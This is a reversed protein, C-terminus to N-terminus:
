ACIIVKENRITWLNRAMFPQVPHFRAKIALPTFVNQQIRGFMGYKACGWVYVAGTEKCIASSSEFGSAVWDFKANIAIKQFKQQTSFTKPGLGLSGKQGSGAAWVDGVASVIFTTQGGCSVMKRLKLDSILM